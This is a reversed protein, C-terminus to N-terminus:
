KTINNFTVGRTGPMTLIDDTIHTNLSYGKYCYTAYNITLVLWLYFLNAVFHHTLSTLRAVKRAEEKAQLLAYGGLPKLKTEQSLVLTSIIVFM